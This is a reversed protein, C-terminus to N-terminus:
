AEVRNDRDEVAFRIQQREIVVIPYSGVAEQPEGCRRRAGVKHVDTSDGALAVIRDRDPDRVILDVEVAKIEFRAVDESSLKQVTGVTQFQVTGVAREQDTTKKIVGGEM